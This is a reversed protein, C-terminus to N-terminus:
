KERDEDVILVTNVKSLNSSILKWSKGDGDSQYLNGSNTGFVMLDDVRDLGQRLVIDFAMESPLGEDEQQWNKGFDNTQYVRLNLDPANRQDDSEAPIVWAREPRKHDIALAFGYSPLGDANSVDQWSEAGDMSVFVGCHNQQWMVDPNSRCILIAHPDHGIETHENPLYTAKLGNNRPEWSGGHDRSEFVGACSVGVFIRDPNGPHAEITHVFPYNSGAGFWQNQNSRSPHNWLSEVLEFSAGNNESVFLGGPDTGMWLSNGARRITWIQRLRARSGDSLYRDEFVPVPKEEWTKGEDVSRHLKQGWHKHSLGVWWSGDLPDAYTMTVAFGKFQVDSPKLLNGVHQFIVLGKGTGILVKRNSMNTKYDRHIKPENTDQPLSM